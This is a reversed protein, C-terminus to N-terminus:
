PFFTWGELGTETIVGNNEEVAKENQDDHDSSYLVNVAGDAELTFLVIAEGCQQAINAGIFNDEHDIVNVTTKAYPGGHGTKKCIKVLM